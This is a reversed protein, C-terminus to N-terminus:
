FKTDIRLIYIQPLPHLLDGVQTNLVNKMFSLDINLASFATESDFEIIFNRTGAHLVAAEYRAYISPDDFKEFGNPPKIEPM